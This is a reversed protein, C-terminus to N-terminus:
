VHERSSLSLGSKVSVWFGSGMRSDVFNLHIERHSLDYGLLVQNMLSTFAILIPKVVSSFREVEYFKAELLLM